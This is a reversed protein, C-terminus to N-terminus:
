SPATKGSALLLREANERNIWALGWISHPAGAGSKLHRTWGGMEITAGLIEGDRGDCFVRWRM